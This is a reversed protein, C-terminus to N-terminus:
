VELMEFHNPIRLGRRSIESVLRDSMCLLWERGIRREKWLQAGSFASARFALSQMARQGEKHVFSSAGDERFSKSDSLDPAFSDFRQGVVLTYFIKPYYQGRRMLIKIPFFSHVRPELEELLEKMADDVAIIRNNLAIISGLNKVKRLTQFFEPSEHSRIPSWAPFDPNFSRPDDSIFKLSVYYPYLYAANGDDIQYDFLEKQSAVSQAMFYETLRQGWDQGQPEQPDGEFKGDPFFEGFASPLSMGWVM